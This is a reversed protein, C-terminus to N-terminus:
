QQHDLLTIKNKIEKLLWKVSCHFQGELLTNFGDTMHMEATSLEQTNLLARPNRYEACLSAVSILPTPSALLGDTTRQM